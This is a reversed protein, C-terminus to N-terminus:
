TASRPDSAPDAVAAASALLHVVPPAGRGHAARAVYTRHCVRFDAEFCMVCCARQQALAALRDLADGQTDLYALFDHTYRPWSRDSRYRVRIARPCGLSRMHVYGISAGALREALVAKSFGPKRSLPLERVDVLTRVGVSAIREIYAAVSAGEYGATYLRKASIPM